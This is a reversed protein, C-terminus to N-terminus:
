ADPPGAKALGQLAERTRAYPYNFIPSTQRAPKWDVPLLGSAYKADSTGEPATVAQEDEAGTEAFGANFMAVLPIDLGDLWVMPKSSDNGHDHWTWTPTIVFDGERMITREGDVATYAGEGEVIFRLASQTHRHAPAVEGPLILQLGAFLSHTISTQGKLGPNELILVRRTAEEASILGGSEMLYPRVDRYHWIAPLCPTVPQATVLGHLREWLPALNSVAIREYFAEREPSRAAAQEIAM